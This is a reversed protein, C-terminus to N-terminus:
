AMMMLTKEKQLYFAKSQTNTQIVVINERNLIIAYVAINTAVTNTQKKGLYSLVEEKTPQHLFPPSIKLAPPLLM